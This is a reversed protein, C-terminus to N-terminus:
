DHWGIATEWLSLRPYYRRYSLCDPLLRWANHMDSVEGVLLTIFTLFATITPLTISPFASQMASVFLATSYISCATTTLLITILLRRLDKTIMAFASRPGESEAVQEAHWPSIKTIAAEASHLSASLAFLAFWLAFAPLPKLPVDTAVSSVGYCKVIRPSTKQNSIETLSLKNLNPTHRLIRLVPLSRSPLLAVSYLPGSIFFLLLFLALFQCRM